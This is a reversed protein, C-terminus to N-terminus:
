APLEQAQIAKDIQTEIYKLADEPTRAHTNAENMGNLIFAGPPANIVDDVKAGLPFGYNPDHPVDSREQLAFGLRRFMAPHGIAFAVVALDLPQDAHKITVAQSTRFKGNSQVFCGILEVRMGDSELQNVYQAVGVGFNAAYRAHTAASLFLPVILTLVRGQGLSAEHRTHRIMNDPAGACFRPVHPRFGYFDTKTDVHPTAANFAKLAGQAREAGELWGNRAMNVADAYNAGLTWDEGYNAESSSDPWKRPTRAIWEGMEHLSDWQYRARKTEIRSQM